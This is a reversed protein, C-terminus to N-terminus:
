FGPQDSNSRKWYWPLCINIVSVFLIYYTLIPVLHDSHWNMGREKLYEEFIKRTFLSVNHEM